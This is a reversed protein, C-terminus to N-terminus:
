TPVSPTTSPAPKDTSSAALDAFVDHEGAAKLQQISKAWLEEAVSDDLCLKCLKSTSLIGYPTFSARRRSSALAFHDAEISAIGSPPPASVIRWSLGEGPDREINCRIANYPRIRRPEDTRARAHTRANPRANPRKSRM